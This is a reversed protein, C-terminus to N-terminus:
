RRAVAPSPSYGPLPPRRTPLSILRGRRGLAARAPRGQLDATPTPPCLTQALEVSNAAASRIALIPSPVPMGKQWARWLPETLAVGRAPVLWNGAELARTAAVALARTTGALGHVVDTVLRTNSTVIDPAHTVVRLIETAQRVARGDGPEWGAISNRRTTAAQLAKAHRRLAGVLATSDVPSDDPWPSRQLSDALMVCARAQLTALPSFREPRLLGGHELLAALRLQAAPLDEMRRARVVLLSPVPARDPGVEPLPGRSALLLTERACVGLALHMGRHLATALDRSQAQPAAWVMLGLDLQTLVEAMSAIDAMGAWQLDPAFPERLGTTWAHQAVTAHLAVQQWAAGAETAPHASAVDTPALAGAPRPYRRLARGFSEVPHVEIDHPRIALLSDSIGTLDEHVSLLLGLLARRGTLVIDIDRPNLTKEHRAASYLASATRILHTRYTEALPMGRVDANM